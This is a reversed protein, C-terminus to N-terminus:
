QRLQAVRAEEQNCQLIACGPNSLLDSARGALYARPLFAALGLFFAYLGECIREHVSAKRMEYCIVPFLNQSLDLELVTRSQYLM